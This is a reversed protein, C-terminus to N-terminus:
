ANKGGIDAKWKNINISHLNQKPLINYSFFYVSEIHSSKGQGDSISKKYYPRLGYQVFAQAWIMPNYRIGLVRNTM